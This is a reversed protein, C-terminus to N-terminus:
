KLARQLFAPISTVIRLVWSLNRIGFSSECFECFLKGLSERYVLPAGCNPCKYSIIQGM